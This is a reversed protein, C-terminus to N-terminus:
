GPPIKQILKGDTFLELGKVSLEYGRPPHDSLDTVALDLVLLTEGNSPVQFSLKVPGVTNEVPATKQTKKLVGDISKLKVHFADFSGSEVPGRFVRVTKADVYQTLDFTAPSPALERWGTQWFRLGAKPSILIKDIIIDLRAFDGIADRHDKIRVELIGQAGEAAFPLAVWLCLAFALACLFVLGSYTKIQTFRAM